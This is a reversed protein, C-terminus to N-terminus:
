LLLRVTKKGCIKLQPTCDIRLYVKCDRPDIMPERHRSMHGVSTEVPSCAALRLRACRGETKWMTCRNRADCLGNSNM